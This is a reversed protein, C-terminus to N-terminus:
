AAASEQTPSALPQSLLVVLRGIEADTLRCRSCDGPDAIGHGCPEDFGAQFAEEPTMCVRGVQAANM